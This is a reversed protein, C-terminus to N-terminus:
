YRTWFCDANAILVIRTNKVVRHNCRKQRERYTARDPVLTFPVGAASARVARQKWYHNAAPASCPTMVEREVKHLERIPMGVFSLRVFTIPGLQAFCLAHGQTLRLGSHRYRDVDAVRVVDM